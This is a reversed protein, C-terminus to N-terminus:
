TANQSCTAFCAHYSIGSHLSKLKTWVSRPVKSLTWRVKTFADRNSAVTRELGVGGAAYDYAAPALRLKASQELRDYNTSAIPTQNYLTTNYYIQSSYSSYGVSGPDPDLVSQILQQASQATVPTFISAALLAAECRALFSLQLRMTTTTNSTTTFSPSAKSSKESLAKYQGVLLSYRATGLGLIESLGLDM